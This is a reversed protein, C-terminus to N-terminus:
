QWSLYSKVEDPLRVQWDQDFGSLNASLELKIDQSSDELQRLDSDIQWKLIQETKADVFFRVKGESESYAGADATQGDELLSQQWPLTLVVADRDGVRTTGEKEIAVQSMLESNMLELFAAPNTNQQAAADAGTEIIQWDFDDGGAPRRMLQSGNSIVETHMGMYSTTAHTYRHSKVNGSSSINLLESGQASLRYSMDFTYTKLNAFQRLSRLLMKRNEVMEAEEESNLDADAASEFAAAEEEKVPAPEYIERVPAPEPKEPKVSLDRVPRIDPREVTKGARQYGIIGVLLLLALGIAYRKKM